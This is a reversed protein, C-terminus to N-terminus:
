KKAGSEILAELAINNENYAAYHMPTLNFIDKQNIIEPSISKFKAIIELMDKKSLNKAFSLSHLPTMLDKDTSIEVGNDIFYLLTEKNGFQATFHLFSYKEESQDILFKNLNQLNIKSGAYNKELIAKALKNYHDSISLALLDAIDGTLSNLEISSIQSIINQEIEKNYIEQWSQIIEKLKM